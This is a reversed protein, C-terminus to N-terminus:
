LISQQCGIRMNQFGNNMGGASKRLACHLLNPCRHYMWLLCTFDELLKFSAVLMNAHGSGRASRYLYVVDVANSMIDLILDSSAEIVQTQM